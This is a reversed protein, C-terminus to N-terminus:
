FIVPGILTKQPFLAPLEPCRKHPFRSSTFLYSQDTKFIRMRGLNKGGYKEQVNQKPKKENWRTHCVTADVDTHEINQTNSCMM